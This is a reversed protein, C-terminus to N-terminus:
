KPRIQWLPMVLTGKIQCVCEMTMRCRSLGNNFQEKNRDLNGINPKMLWSMLPNALDGLIVIPMEVDGVTIKQDPFFTGAQLNRYLSTNRFICADHEKGWWGASIDTFHGCHDVLVQLVMSFYEKRNIYETAVHDPALIPIHMGDITRGCNPFGIAAFGDVIEHVNGLTLTSQLLIHNIARCVQTLAAGVTSKRVGFQNAVSRYCDPTALKWVAIAVCKEVSFAARMQTDRRWLAPALEACLELFTAKRMWFNQLWQKDDWVQMVIHDWWETSTDHAWFCCNVMHLQKMFASLLRISIRSSDSLVVPLQSEQQSGFKLILQVAMQLTSASCPVAASSGHHLSCFVLSMSFHQSGFVSTYPM